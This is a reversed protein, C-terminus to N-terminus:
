RVSSRGAVRRNVLNTMRYVRFSMQRPPPAKLFSAGPDGMEAKHMAADRVQRPLPIGTMVTAILEAQALTGPKKRLPNGCRRLPDLIDFHLIFSAM